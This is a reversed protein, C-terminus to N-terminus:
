QVVMFGTNGRKRWRWLQPSVRDSAIVLPNLANDNCHFVVFSGQAVPLKQLLRLQRCNGATFTM